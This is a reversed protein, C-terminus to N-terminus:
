LGLLYLGLGHKMVLGKLSLNRLKQFSTLFPFGGEGGDVGGWVLQFEGSRAPVLGLLLWCDRGVWGVHEM